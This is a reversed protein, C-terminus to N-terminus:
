SHASSRSSSSCRTWCWARRRSRRGRARRQSPGSWPALPRSSEARRCSAPHSPPPPRRLLRPTSARGAVVLCEGQRDPAVGHCGGNNDGGGTEAARAVAAPRRRREVRASRAMAATTAAMAASRGLQTRPPAAAATMAMAASTSPRSRPPAAAPYRWINSGARAAGRPRSSRRTVAGPRSGDNCGPVPVVLTPM